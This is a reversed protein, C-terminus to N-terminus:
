TAVLKFGTVEILHYVNGTFVSTRDPDIIQSKDRWKSAEQQLLYDYDQNRFHRDWCFETRKHTM